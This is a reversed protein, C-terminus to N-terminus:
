LPSPLSASPMSRRCHATGSSNLGREMSIMRAPGQRCKYSAAPPAALSLASHTASSRYKRCHKSASVPLRNRVLASGCGWTSDYDGGDISVNSYIGKQGSISFGRCEPEILAAPTEVVMNQLRRGDSPLEHIQLDTLISKPASSTPEVGPVDNTVNISETRGAISLNFNVSVSSGLTVLAEQATLKFVAPM